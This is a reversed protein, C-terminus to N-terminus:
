SAFSFADTLWVFCPWLTLVKCLTSYLTFGGLGSCIEARPGLVTMPNRAQCQAKEEWICPVSNTCHQSHHRYLALVQWLGTPWSCNSPMNALHRSSGLLLAASIKSQKGVKRDWSRFDFCLSQSWKFKKLHVAAWSRMPEPQQTMTRTVHLGVAM